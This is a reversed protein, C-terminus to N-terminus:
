LLVHVFPPLPIRRAEPPCFDNFALTAWERSCHASEIVLIRSEPSKEVRYRAELDIPQNEGKLNLSLRLIKHTSDLELSTLTGYRAIGFKNALVRSLKSLMADKGGKILSRM